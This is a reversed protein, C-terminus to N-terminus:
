SHHYGIRTSRRGATSQDTQLHLHQRAGSHRDPREECQVFGGRESSALRYRQGHPKTGRRGALAGGGRSVGRVGCLHPGGRGRAEPPVRQGLHGPTQLVASSLSLALSSSNTHM